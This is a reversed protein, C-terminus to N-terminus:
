LLLLASVVASKTIVYQMYTARFLANIIRFIDYDSKEVAVCQEAEGSPLTTATRQTDTENNENLASGCVTCFAGDSQAGCQQCVKM